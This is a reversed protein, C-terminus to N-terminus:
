QIRNGIRGWNLGGNATDWNMWIFFAKGVLNEQPVMGWFRSDNSRDRNDGMVFYNKPPVIYECNTMHGPPVNYECHTPQSGMM